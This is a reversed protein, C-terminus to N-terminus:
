VQLIDWFRLKSILLDIFEQVNDSADNESAGERHQFLVAIWIQHEAKAIYYNFKSGPDSIFTSKNEFNDFYDKNSQLNNILNKWIAQPTREKSFSVLFISNTVYRLPLFFLHGHVLGQVALDFM